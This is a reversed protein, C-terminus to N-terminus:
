KGTIIKRIESLKNLAELPTLNNLDMNKIEDRVQSLVPDDLQFFSLQYNGSQRTAPAKKVSSGSIAGEQRKESELQKLIEDARNVICKPMGAMKAVHIGFSHESGGPVLKRLFIVKNGVEKVSVNFNKIRPFSREMENLEHYHTAFLTKAHAHPHEHIYEVIAWAISIGDYTSTGRGLEDFLVLSRSTMNNLIDAAENMEVMFTSEGVSINDSAGVRTFIKDVIGIRASEAPVFCGIQALLTILATQRLLASKGAMNPGTIIIIQQKDEDLYVDNAVYTEGLPLQKEIVPHRGGKIDIVDSEDVLPRIYKNSEAAKAFSLLCDLRGILNANCQIPPIYETLCLVLENFLRSELSLIKEEAGLIKEEYEKLEETIYREANVLTQKRIWDAPVKDKHANRVEIYYGFVNNFAIKLSPIGTKESERQQVQLLYDKGSYAISRLEDLEENVGKAIVGGKNVLSPPDPQIERDIRDRILACVNLQEGIRCLSPENSAMCAEKIPELAQLAIKLQVVERPTVRGVAVKSIIRELDGIQELQEDLLEKVEPHRFFYEVVDQREQIPKVDKLPFLIWRRLLRSGMPSITKDIVDLLSKGDENMACVLELSRVTFKDLRVYREEEIRALSTIHSIHTHQTQDLYYLIAGSAIIGLKLHQIGFGKLNKTEFHKLLRDNAAESTFIWDDLEFSFYRPGFIEEFKKKNNRELLVEKPSFNNLLKDIYDTTGEATLFEGTSIDLFAIGCKDKAFHIAALFNNEKHNLINDNISVGPTVLETIGRKVLKKTLKPDELQDCIAVRKGARVLKPLYTDLAHHPFGAMEVSQGVGNARKTQVIGLIEAGVVADDGYMEYFDGVRFLLIADPHKAKIEFYQKMLPTEVIKAV